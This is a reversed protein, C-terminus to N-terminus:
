APVTEDGARQTESKARPKAGASFSLIELAPDYIKKEANKDRVRPIIRGELTVNQGVALAAMLKKNLNADFSVCGMWETATYNDSKGEVIREAAVSIRVVNRVYENIAGIRGQVKFSFM